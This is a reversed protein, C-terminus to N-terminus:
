PYINYLYRESYHEMVKYCVEEFGGDKL